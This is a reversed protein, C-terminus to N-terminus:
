ERSADLVVGADKSHVRLGLARESLGAMVLCGEGALESSPSTHPPGETSQQELNPNWRPLRALPVM